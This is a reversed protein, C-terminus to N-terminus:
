PSSGLSRSRSISAPFMNAKYHEAHGSTHWLEMNYINPTVVEEYEYRWYLGIYQRPPHM